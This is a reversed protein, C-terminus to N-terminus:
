LKKLQEEIWRRIPYYRCLLRFTSPPSYEGIEKQLRQKLDPYFEDIVCYCVYAVHNQRKKLVDILRIIKRVKEGKDLYWSLDSQSPGNTELERLKSVEKQLAKKVSEIARRELKGETADIIRAFNIPHRGYKM